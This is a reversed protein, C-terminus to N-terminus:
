SRVRAPLDFRCPGSSSIAARGRAVKTSEDPLDHHDHRSRRTRALRSAKGPRPRRRRGRRALRAQASRALWRSCSASDSLGGRAAIAPSAPHRQRSVLVAWGGWHAEIQGIQRDPQGGAAASRTIGEPCSRGWGLAGGCIHSKDPSQLIGAAAGGTSDQVSAPRIRFPYGTLVGNATM